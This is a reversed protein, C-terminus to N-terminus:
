RPAIWGHEEWYPVFSGPYVACPPRGDTFLNVGASLLAADALEACQWRDTDMLHRTLWRPTDRKTTIAVGILLVDLLAYPKGVQQLTFTAIDHRQRGTYRFRSWVANPFHSIPRLRVGDLEASVCSRNSIAVVTHHMPSGTVHSILRQFPKKGDPVLGVQGTLNM